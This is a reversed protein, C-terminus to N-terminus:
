EHRDGSRRVVIRGLPVSCCDNVGLARERRGEEIGRCFERHDLVNDHHPHNSTDAPLNLHRGKLAAYESGDLLSSVEVTLLETLWLLGKDFLTHIDARLLLGNNVLNSDRGRYPKIHAAELIELVACGTVACRGNYARILASRFAPAGERQAILRYAKARSDDDPAKATSEALAQQEADVKVLACVVEPEVLCFPIYQGASNERRDWVGHQASDYLEYTVNTRVGRRYLMDKPHNQDTCYDARKGARGKLYRNRDNVTYTSAAPYPDAIDVGQARCWECLEGITRRGGLAKAARVLMQGHNAKM